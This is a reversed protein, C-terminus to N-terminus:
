ERALRYEWTGNDRYRRDVRHSGFKPKRLDRIRASVSAETGGAEKALRELTWWEHDSLCRKVRELLASLRAEDREPDFTEGDFKPSETQHPHRASTKDARYLTGNPDAVVAAWERCDQCQELRIFTAGWPLLWGSPPMAM